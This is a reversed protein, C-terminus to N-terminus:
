VRNPIERRVNVCLCNKVKLKPVFAVLLTNVITYEDDTLLVTILFNCSKTNDRKIVESALEHSKNKSESLETCFM